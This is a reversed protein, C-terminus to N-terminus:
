PLPIGMLMQFGLKVAALFAVVTVVAWIPNRQGVAWLLALLWVGTVEYFGFHTLLLPYLAILVVTVLVARPRRVEVPEAAGRGTLMQRTGQYVMLLTAAGLVLAVGRPFAIAGMLGGEGKAFSYSGVWLALAVLALVVGVIVEVLGAPFVLAVWWPTEDDVQRQPQAM